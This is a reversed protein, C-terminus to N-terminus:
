WIGMDMLAIVSTVFVELLLYPGSLRVLKFYRFEGAIM